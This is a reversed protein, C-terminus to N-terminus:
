ICWPLGSQSERNLSINTATDLSQTDAVHNYRLLTRLTFLSVDNNWGDLCWLSIASCFSTMLYIWECTWCFNSPSRAWHLIPLSYLPGLKWFIQAWILVKKNLCAFLYRWFRSNSIHWLSQSSCNLTNNVPHISFAWLPYRNTYISHHNSIYLPRRLAYQLLSCNDSSNLYDGRIATNRVLNSSNTFLVFNYRKM